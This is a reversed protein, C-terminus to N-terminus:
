SSSIVSHLVRDHEFYVTFENYEWRSIPPDGVGSVRRNPEGFASEVAEMSMGRSPVTADKRVRIVREGDREVVVIDASALFPSASLLCCAIMTPLRKM